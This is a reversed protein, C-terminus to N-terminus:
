CVVTAGWIGKYTFLCGFHSFIYVRFTFFLRELHIFCKSELHRLISATHAFKINVSTTFIQKTNMMLIFNILFFVLCVYMYEYICVSLCYAGHPSRGHVYHDHMCWVILMWVVVACVNLYKLPLYKSINCHYICTNPVLTACYMHQLMKHIEARMNALFLDWDVWVSITIQKLTPYLDMHWPCVRVRGCYWINYSGCHMIHLSYHPWKTGFIYGKFIELYKGKFYKFTHANTIQINIAHICVHFNHLRVITGMLCIAQVIDTHINTHIYTRPKTLTKKNYFKYKHHIFASKWLYRWFLNPM